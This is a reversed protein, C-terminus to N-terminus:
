HLTYLLEQLLIKVDRQERADVEFVPYKMNKKALHDNYEEITPNDVSDMNTVGIALSTRGIFKGFADLYYDLDELPAKSANNIMLLLGLGDETLIEWMNDFREQGPTGYLHVIEGSPMKVMGYDMADASDSKTDTIGEEASTTFRESVANIAASKGSADPGTIIIKCNESTQHIM